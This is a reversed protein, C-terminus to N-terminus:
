IIKFKKNINKPDTSLDFTTKYVINILYITSYLAIVIADYIADFLNKSSFMM